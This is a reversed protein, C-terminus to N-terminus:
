PWPAQLMLVKMAANAAIGPEPEVASSANKAELEPVLRADRDRRIKTRHQSGTTATLRGNRKRRNRRPESRNQRAVVAEPASSAGPAARSRSASANRRKPGATPMCIRAEVNMVM